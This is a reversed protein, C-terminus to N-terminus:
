KIETVTIDSIRWTDGKFKAKTPAAARAAKMALEASSAKGSMTNGNSLKFSYAHTLNRM